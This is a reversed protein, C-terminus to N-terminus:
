YPWVRVPRTELNTFWIEDFVFESKSDLYNRAEDLINSTKHQGDHVYETSVYSSTCFVLLWLVESNSKAYHKNLKKKISDKLSSNLLKMDVGWPIEGSKKLIYHDYIGKNYEEESISKAYYREVLETIQITIHGENSVVEFDHDAESLQKYSTFKVQYPLQNFSNMFREMVGAEQEEKDQSLQSMQKTVSGNKGFAIHGFPETPKRPKNAM